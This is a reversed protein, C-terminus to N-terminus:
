QGPPPTTTTPFTPQGAAGDIGMKTLMMQMMIKMQTHDATNEANTQRDFEELRLVRAKWEAPPLDEFRTRMDDMQRTHTASLETVDRTTEVLSTELHDIRFIGRTVWISWPIFCVVFLASLAPSVVYTLFRFLLSWRGVEDFLSEGDEPNAHERDTETPRRQM